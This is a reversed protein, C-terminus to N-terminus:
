TKTAAHAIKTAGHPIKGQLAHVRTATNLSLQESAHPIKTGGGPILDSLSGQMALYIRLWQVM